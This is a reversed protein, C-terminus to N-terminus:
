QDNYIEQRGETEFFKKGSKVVQPLQHSNARARWTPAMKRLYKETTSSVQREMLGGGIIMDALEAAAQWVSAWQGLWANLEADTFTERHVNTDQILFRLANRKQDDTDDNAYGIEEANYSM